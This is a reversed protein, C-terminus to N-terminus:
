GALQTMWWILGAVVLLLLLLRSIPLPKRAGSGAMERRERRIRILSM